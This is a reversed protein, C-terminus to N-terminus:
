LLSLSRATESLWLYLNQFCNVVACAGLEKCLSSNRFTLSVFKSLLECCPVFLIIYCRLQKQFDFICIKFAIWLMSRVTNSGGDATESLWLYLNQFCNVVLSLLSFSSVQQKQFDFICIKFAIWLQRRYILVGQTATESLWLYLNQFCNVVFTRHSTQATWSNRFTLSVFKSLM